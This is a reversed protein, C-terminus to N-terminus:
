EKIKYNLEMYPKGKSIQSFANSVGDVLTKLGFTKNLQTKINTDNLTTVEAVWQPQNNNLSIVLDPTLPYKSNKVL